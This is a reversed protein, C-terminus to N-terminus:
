AHRNRTRFYRGQQTTCMIEVHINLYVKSMIMLDSDPLADDIIMAIFFSFDNRPPAHFGIKNCVLPLSTVCSVARIM